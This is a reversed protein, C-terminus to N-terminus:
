IHEPAGGEHRGMGIEGEFHVSASVWAGGGDSTGRTAAVEIRFSKWL